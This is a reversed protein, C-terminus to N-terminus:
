TGNLSESESAHRRGLELQFKVREIILLKLEEIKDFAAQRLNALWEPEAHM